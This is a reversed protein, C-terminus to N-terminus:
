RYNYPYEAKRKQFSLIEPNQINGERIEICRSITSDADWHQPGNIVTQLHPLLAESIEWTASDWLYSPSHDVGYYTINDGVSFTPTNFTTPKAWSFGMSEDCSVDVILTGPTLKPLDDEILFTLPSDTEQLVCNVIIDHKSLFEELPVRGNETLAHSRRPDGNGHAFNIMQASHIPSSVATVGRNTLINVEHIGHANLATVAGRATAGFGIVAASLRRGYDGTSGILSLAHLVSCYGALENNKHFVHLKFSGDKGWHNMAEFALLTLEKDIAIQTIAKDQVCHPWGWLTQGIRLDALDDALPKALLIVDSHAILQERSQIGAVYQALYDDSVGFQHGYGAELYIHKRVEPDIRVFHLPHIPLRSENEKRTRSIIGLNLQDM